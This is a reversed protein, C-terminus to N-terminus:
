QQIAKYGKNSQLNEMSDQLYLDMLNPYFNIQMRNGKIANHTLYRGLSKSKTFGNM